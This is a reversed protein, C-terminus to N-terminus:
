TWLALEDALHQPAASGPLRGGEDVTDFVFALELAHCAGLGSVTADREGNWPVVPRPARYRDAGVAPGAYPIGLFSSVEGRRSGRVLGGTVRVVPDM